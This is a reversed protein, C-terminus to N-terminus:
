SAANGRSEEDSKHMKDYHEFTKSVASEDKGDKDGDKEPKELEQVGVITASPMNSHDNRGGREASGHGTITTPDIIGGSKPNHKNIITRLKDIKISHNHVKDKLQYNNNQGELSSRHTSSPPM